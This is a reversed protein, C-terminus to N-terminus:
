TWSPASAIRPRRMTVRASPLCVWSSNRAPSKRASKRAPSSRSFRSLTATYKRNWTVSVSASSPTTLPPPAPYKNRLATFESRALDYRQSKFYLSGLQQQTLAKEDASIATVADNAIIWRRLYSEAKERSVEDELLMLRGAVYRIYDVPINDLNKPFIAENVTYAKWASELESNRFSEAAVLFVSYPVSPDIIVTGLGLASDKNLTYLFQRGQARTKEDVSKFHSDAKLLVMGALQPTKDDALQRALTVLETFRSAESPGFSSAFRNLYQAFEIPQNLRASGTLAAKIWTPYATYIKIGDKVLQLQDATYDPTATIRSITADM